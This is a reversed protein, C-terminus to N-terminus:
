ARARRRAAPVPAAEDQRGSGIELLAHLAEVVRRRQEPNLPSLAAVTKVLAQTPKDVPM